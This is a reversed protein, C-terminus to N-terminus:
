GRMLEVRWGGEGAPSLRQWLWPMAEKLGEKVQWPSNVVLMGSGRMGPMRADRVSIETVLVEEEVKRSLNRLMRGSRDDGSLLPYWLAYVGTPWRKVAGAVAEVALSYDDKVEYPPDIFVLGRREPPPTFARIAEWGDRCHVGVQPDRAFRTRLLEHDRPHLECAVIRDDARMLARVLATSGPYRHMTGKPNLAVVHDLYRAVQGPATDRAGIVRLIGSEHERTKRAEPSELDHEGGGAHTDLVFFPKDKRALAEVLVTLVVHKHVDAFNGAHFAHRYSLM